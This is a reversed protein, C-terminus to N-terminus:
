GARSRRGSGSPLPLFLRVPLARTVQNIELHATRGRRVGRVASPWGLRGGSRRGRGGGAAALGRGPKVAARSGLGSSAAARAAPVWYTVGAEGRAGAGAGAADWREWVEGPGGGAVTRPVGGRALPPGRRATGGPAGQGRLARPPRAPRGGSPPLLAGGRREEQAEM